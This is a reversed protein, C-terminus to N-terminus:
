ARRPRSRFRSPRTGRSAAKPLLSVVEIRRMPLTVAVAHRRDRGGFRPALSPLNGNASKHKEEFGPPPGHDSAVAEHDEGRERANRRRPEGRLLLRLVHLRLCPERRQGRPRRQHERARDVAAAVDGRGPLALNVDLRERDVDCRARLHCQELEDGDLASRADLRRNIVPAGVLRIGRRRAARRVRRREDRLVVGRGAPAAVHHAQLPPVGALVLTKLRPRVPCNVQGVVAGQRRHSGRTAQSPGNERGRDRGDGARCEGFLPFGGHARRQDERARDVGAALGEVRPGALDHDLRERDVERGSPLHDRELHEHVPRDHVVPTGVLRIRRRDGPRGVRRRPDRPSEPDPAAGAM